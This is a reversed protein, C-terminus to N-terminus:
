EPLVQMLLNRQIQVTNVPVQLVTGTRIMSQLGSYKWQTMKRVTIRVPYFIIITMRQMFDVLYQFSTMMIRSEQLKYDKTYYEVLIGTNDDNKQVRMLKGDTTETLYSEIPTSWKTYNQADINTTEYDQGCTAYATVATSALLVTSIVFMTLFKMKRM